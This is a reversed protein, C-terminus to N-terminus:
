EEGGGEDGGGEDGGGEEGGGDDAGGDDDMAGDDGGDDMAPDDGGEDEVPDDAAGDDITGDDTAGDDAAGAEVEDEATEEVTTEESAELSVSEEVSTEEYSIEESEEYSVEVYTETSTWETQSVETWSEFTAIEVVYGYSRGLDLHARGKSVVGSPAAPDILSVGILRATRGDVALIAGVGDLRARILYVQAKRRVEDIEFGEAELAVLISGPSHLRATAAEAGQPALAGALHALVAATCLLHRLQM